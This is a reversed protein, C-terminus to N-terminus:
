TESPTFMVNQIEPSISRLISESYHYVYCYIFFVACKKIIGYMDKLSHKLGLSESESPALSRKNQVNKLRDGRVYWIRSM